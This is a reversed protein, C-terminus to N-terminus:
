VSRSNSSHSPPPHLHTATSPHPYIHAPPLDFCPSARQAGGSDDAPKTPYVGAKVSRSLRVSHHVEAPPSLYSSDETDDRTRSDPLIRIREMMKALDQVRQAYGEAMESFKLAEKTASDDSVHENAEPFVHCKCFKPCECISNPRRRSSKDFISSSISVDSVSSTPLEDISRRSMELVRKIYQHLRPNKNKADIKCLIARLLAQHAPSLKNPPSMYSTSGSSTPESGSFRNNWTMNRSVPSEQCFELSTQIDKDTTKLPHEVSLRDKKKGLKESVKVTVKIGEFMLSSEVADSNSSSKSSVMECELGVGDTSQRPSNSVVSVDQPNKEQEGTLQAEIVPEVVDGPQQDSVSPSNENAPEKPLKTDVHEVEPGGSIRREVVKQEPRNNGDHPCRTCKSSCSCVECVVQCKVPSAVRDQKVPVVRVGSPGAEQQCRIWQPIDEEELNIAGYKAELEQQQRAREAKLKGVLERFFEENDTSSDQYIKTPSVPKVDLFFYM